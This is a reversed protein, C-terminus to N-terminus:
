ISAQLRLYSYINVLTRLGESSLQAGLDNQVARVLERFERDSDM